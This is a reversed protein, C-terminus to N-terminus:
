EGPRPDRPLGLLREAIVNRQIESTGGYITKARNLLLALARGEAAGETTAADVGQLEWALESLDQELEVAVLKRVASTGGPDTGALQLLTARAGLLSTSVADALLRGVRHRVVADDTRGTAAVADLLDRAEGRFPSNGGISVRESALTGRTVRWGDDVAGIVNGDPVFADQLFVENFLAHGTLERLPRVEVGPQDMEIVFYTIGEHKPAQSDTRALLIGLDAAQALSTWVKQGTVSWGGDVRVAKTSLSALDSGGGARQVAPVM